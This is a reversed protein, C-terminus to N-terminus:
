TVMTVRLYLRGTLFSGSKYSTGRINLPINHPNQLREPRRGECPLLPGGHEGSGARIPGYARM